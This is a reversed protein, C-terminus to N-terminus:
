LRIWRLTPSPDTELVLYDVGDFKSCKFMQFCRTALGPYMFLIMAILIKFTQSKRHAILEKTTHPKCIKSVVYALLIGVALMPPMSMTQHQLQQDYKILLLVEKINNAM